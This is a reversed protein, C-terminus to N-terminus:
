TGKLISLADHRNELAQEHVNAEQISIDEQNEILAKTHLFWHSSNSLVQSVAVFVGNRNVETELVPWDDRMECRNM